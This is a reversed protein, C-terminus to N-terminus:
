SVTPWRTKTRKGTAGNFRTPQGVAQDATRLGAMADNRPCPFSGRIPDARRGEADDDLRHNIKM